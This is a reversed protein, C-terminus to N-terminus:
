DTYQKIWDFLIRSFFMKLLQVLHEENYFGRLNREKWLTFFSSELGKGGIWLLVM